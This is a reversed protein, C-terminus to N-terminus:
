LGAAKQVTALLLEPTSPHMEYAAILADVGNVATRVVFGADQLVMAVM